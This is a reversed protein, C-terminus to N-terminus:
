HAVLQAPQLTRKVAPVLDNPSQHLHGVEPAQGELIPTLVFSHFQFTVDDIRHNTVEGFAIAAIHALNKVLFRRHIQRGVDKMVGIFDSTTSSAMLCYLQHTNEAKIGTLNKGVRPNIIEDVAQLEFGFLRCGIHM